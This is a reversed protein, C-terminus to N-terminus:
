TPEIQLGTAGGRPVDTSAVFHVSLPIKLSLAHNRFIERLGGKKFDNRCQEYYELSSYGPPRPNQDHKHQEMWELDEWHKKVEYPIDVVIRRGKVTLVVEDKNTQGPFKKDNLAVQGVYIAARRYFDKKLIKWQRTKCSSKTESRKLQGNDEWIAHRHSEEDCDKDHLNVWGWIAGRLEGTDDDIVDEEVLQKYMAQTVQKTGVTLVKVSVQREEVKAADVPITANALKAATSRNEKQAM